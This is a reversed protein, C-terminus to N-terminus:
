ARVQSEGTWVYGNGAHAHIFKETRGDQDIVLCTLRGGYAAGTDINIRNPLVETPFREGTPSRFLPTHGHVVVFGHDEASMLFLNRIWIMEDRTQQELPRGPRIGAHVFLYGPERHYLKLGNLFERHEAPILDGDKPGDRDRPESILGEARWARYYSDITQDGGNNLWMDADSMRMRGNYWPLAMDEHNGLLHVTRFGLPNDILTQIVGMSDPGRDVYDGLYVALKECEHKEADVAIAEHLKQLMDLRGHIDTLAYIRKGM